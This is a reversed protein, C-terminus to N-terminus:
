GDRQVEAAFVRIASEDLTEYELLDRAGRDLLVRNRDLIRTAREFGSMVIARVAEDIRQQTAESLQRSPQMQGAVAELMQPRRSELAVCGLEEDMGFRTVMDYAIDTAKVLDDAAGSSLLGM